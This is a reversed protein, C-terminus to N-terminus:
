LNTYIYIICRTSAYATICPVSARQTRLDKESQCRNWCYVLCKMLTTRTCKLFFFFYIEIRACVYSHFLFFIFFYYTCIPYLSQLADLVRRAGSPVTTTVTTNNYYIIICTRIKEKKGGGRKKRM